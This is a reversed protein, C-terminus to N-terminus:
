FFGEPVSESLERHVKSRKEGSKPAGPVSRSRNQLRRPRNQLSRARIRTENQRFHVSIGRCTAHLGAHFCDQLSINKCSSLRCSFLRAHLCDAHFCDQMFVVRATVGDALVRGFGALFRCANETVWVCPFWVLPRRDRTLTRM